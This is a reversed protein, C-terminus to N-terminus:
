QWRSRDSECCTGGQANLNSARLLEELLDLTKLADGSICVGWQRMQVFGFCVSRDASSCPTDSGGLLEACKTFAESRVRKWQAWRM